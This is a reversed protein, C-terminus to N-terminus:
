GYFPEPLLAKLLESKKQRILHAAYDLNSIAGAFDKIRYQRMAEEITAIIDDKDATTHNSTIHNRVPAIPWLSQGTQPPVVAASDHGDVVIDTSMDTAEPQEKQGPAQAEIIVAEHTPAAPWLSQGSQPAIASQGITESSSTTQPAQTEIIVAEEYSPVAHWVAQDVDDQQVADDTPAVEEQQPIEEEIVSSSGTSVNSEEQVVDSVVQSQSINGQQEAALVSLSSGLVALLVTAFVCKKITQGM